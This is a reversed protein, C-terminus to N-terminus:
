TNSTADCNLIFVKTEAGEASLHMSHIVLTLTKRTYWSHDRDALQKLVKVSRGDLRFDQERAQLFIAISAVIHTILDLFAVLM